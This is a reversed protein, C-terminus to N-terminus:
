GHKKGELERLRATFGSEKLGEALEPRLAYVCIADERLAVTVTGPTLTISNALALRSLDGKVPPVFWVLRPRGTGPVLILRIVQLNARVVQGTVYLLYFFVGPLRRLVRLEARPSIHLIRRALWALATSIVAGVLGIEITVKGNLMVWFLFLLLTM